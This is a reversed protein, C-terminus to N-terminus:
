TSPDACPPEGGLALVYQDELGIGVIAADRRDAIQLEARAADVRQRAVDVRQHGVEDGGADPVDMEVLDHTTRAPRTQGRPEVAGIVHRHVIIRMETRADIQDVLAAAIAALRIDRHALAADPEVQRMGIQLSREARPAAPHGTPEGQM